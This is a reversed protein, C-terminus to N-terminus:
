GASATTFRLDTARAVWTRATHAAGASRMRMSKRGLVKTTEKTGKSRESLVSTAAHRALHGAAYVVAGQAARIGTTVFLANM